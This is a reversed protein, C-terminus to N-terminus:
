DEHDDHSHGDHDHGHEHDEESEFQCEWDEFKDEFQDEWLGPGLGLEEKTLLCEELRFLIQEKDMAIGIFVMEQRKDGVGDAFQTLAVEKPVDWKDESMECYWESTGRTQTINGAKEWEGCYEDRSALWIFGKGRLVPAM